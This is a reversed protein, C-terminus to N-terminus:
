SGFKCMYSGNQPGLDNKADCTLPQLVFVGKAINM